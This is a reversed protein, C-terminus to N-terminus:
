KNNSLTIYISSGQRYILLLVPEDKGVKSAIEQYDKLGTVNKRNVQQIVDGQMLIGAAPSNEDVDTIIVGKIRVPVNLQKAIEPTIDQVGVGRLVNQYEGTEAQQLEAPLEGMTVKLTITKSDRLVKITREEGPLTNAVM